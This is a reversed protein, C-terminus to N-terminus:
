PVPPSRELGVLTWTTADCRFFSQLPVQWAPHDASDASLDVRVFAGDACAIGRPPALPPAPGANEALPTSARTANDFTFWTARYASPPSAVGADVAANAFSVHGEPTMTVDVIPNVPTLYRAAIKQRRAALVHVLHATADTDTYQGADVAARILDDTFAAVRRAAWFNDDWRAHSIAPRFSTAAGLCM